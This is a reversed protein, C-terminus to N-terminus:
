SVTCEGSLVANDFVWAEDQVQAKDKVLANGFVRASDGVWATGEQSLNIESEIYGGLAKTKLDRIRYLTIGNEHIIKENSLEYRPNMSTSRPPPLIIIRRINKSQM